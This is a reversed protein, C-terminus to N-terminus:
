DAASEDDAAEADRLQENLKDRTQKKHEHEVQRILRAAEFYRDNDSWSAYRTDARLLLIKVYTDIEHLERPTDSLVRGHHAIFYRALAQRQEGELWKPNLDRFLEQSPADITALALLDDQYAYRTDIPPHETVAPTKLQTVPAQSQTLKLRKATIAERT